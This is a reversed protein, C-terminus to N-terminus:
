SKKLLLIKERINGAISTIQSLNQFSNELKEVWIEAKSISNVTLYYSILHLMASADKAVIPENSELIEIAKNTNCNEFHYKALIMVPRIDDKYRNYINEIFKESLYLLSNEFLLYFFDASRENILNLAAKEDNETLKQNSLLKTIITVVSNALRMDKEKLYNQYEKLYYSFDNNSGTQYALMLGYSIVEENNLYVQIDNKNVSGSQQKNVSFAKKCLEGAKTKNGEQLHIKSALLYSFPQENNFGLSKEIFSLANMTEFRKHAFLALNTYCEAKIINSVSDSEAAIQFCEESNTFDELILYTSALQFAYYGSKSNEYEELLLSLNREAKAKKENEPINYGVHDILISSNFLKAGNETLSASIQEHVKGVFRLGEINRFLRIYRMSNDRNNQNDLSKVTCFYGAKENLTKIKALEKVSKQHLREDADLYLIWKGTAKSLAFNRAASFDNVWDFEFVNAGYKEAIEVTRDTSGTDIVIIEDVVNKVSKLCEELYGEENKVIMTLSLQFM